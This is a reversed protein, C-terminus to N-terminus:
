GQSWSLLYLEDTWVSSFISDIIKLDKVKTGDDDANWQLVKGSKINARQPLYGRSLLLTLQYDLDYINLYNKVHIWLCGAWTNLLQDYFFIEEDLASLLIDPIIVFETGFYVMGWEPERFLLKHLRRCLWTLLVEGYRCLPWVWRLFFPWSGKTEVSSSQSGWFAPDGWSPEVRHFRRLHFFGRDQALTCMFHNYNRHLLRTTWYVTVFHFNWPFQHEPITQESQLIYLICANEFSIGCLDLVMFNRSSNLSSERVSFWRNRVRM